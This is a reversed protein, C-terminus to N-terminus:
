KTVNLTVKKLDCDRSSTGVMIEFQGPEVVYKMDIDWFSLSEPTIDLSVMATEGPKLTVRQFGRLEKIPRTVSSVLDRIYMQVTESGEREGTITLQVQVKTTGDLKIKSKALKPEGLEFTTYSLGYGFAYLPTM